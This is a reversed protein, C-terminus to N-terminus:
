NPASSGIWRRVGAGGRRRAKDNWIRIAMRPVNGADSTGRVPTRLGVDAKCGDGVCQHLDPRPLGGGATPPLVFTAESLNTWRTFQQMAETTLGEGDLVVAVPNGAYPTTTFVNVQRFRRQKPTLMAM